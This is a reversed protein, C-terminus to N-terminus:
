DRNIVAEQKFRMTAFTLFESALVVASGLIVALMGYNELTGKILERIALGVNAVPIASWLWTLNMGPLFIVMAAIVVFLNALGTLTNAERYSRAYVSIMLAVASFFATVPVLMLWLLGIDLASITALVGQLAVSAAMGEYTLWASLSALSLTSYVLGVSFVVLYKGLVIWHRELPLMVLIELTGKEKEGTVLEIATFTCGMFCIILLPYAIVSGLNHGIRERDSATNIPEYTLPQLLRSRDADNAAGLFVLRWDRQRESLKLLPATGRERVVAESPAAQYHIFDVRVSGGNKMERAADPPIRLAFDIRKSKVAQQLEEPPVDVRSFAPDAAYLQALEPLNQEGAISYTLVKDALKTRHDDAFQMFFHGMAPILLGPLLLMRMFNRRDRLVELLDKRFIVAIQKKM